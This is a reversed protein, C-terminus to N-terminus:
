SEVGSICLERLAGFNGLGQLRRGRHRHGQFAVDVEYHVAKTGFGLQDLLRTATFDVKADVCLM